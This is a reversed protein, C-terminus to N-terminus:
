FVDNKLSFGQETTLGQKMGSYNERLHGTKFAVTYQKAGDSFDAESMGFPKVDSGSFGFIDDLPKPVSQLETLPQITVPPVREGKKGMVYLAGFAGVIIVLVIVAFSLNSSNNNKPM